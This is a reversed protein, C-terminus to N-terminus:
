DRAPAKARAKAKAKAKAKPRAKPKAKPNARPESKPKAKAKPHARPKARPESKPKAKAKAKSRGRPKARPKVGAEQKALERLEDLSDEICMMFFDIDPLIDRTSVVNFSIKGDYSPTAIFLGMGDALPALGGSRVMRAGNMYTPIQPGPVNSIFLNCMKAAVGSRLLLRSAMIQTAAPVHQTIDTMLRASIGSRAEKSARTARHIQKLRQSADAEDTFVPVTMASINNGPM